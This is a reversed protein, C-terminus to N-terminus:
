KSMVKRKFISFIRRILNRFSQYSVIYIISIALVVSIGLIICAIFFKVFGGSVFAINYNWVLYGAAGIGIAILLRSIVM